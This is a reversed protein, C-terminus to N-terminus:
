KMGARPSPILAKQLEALREPSAKIEVYSKYADNQAIDDHTMKIDDKLFSVFEDRKDKTSPNLVALFINNRNGFITHGFDVSSPKMKLIAQVAELQAKQHASYFQLDQYLIPM